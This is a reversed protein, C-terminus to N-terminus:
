TQKGIALKKVGNWAKEVISPNKLQAPTLKNIEEDTFYDRGEFDGATNVAGTEPKPPEAPVAPTEVKPQEALTAAYAAVASFGLTRAKVFKEGLDAYSEAKLDPYATKLAALDAQETKKAQDAKYENAIRRLEQIEPDSDKAQQAKQTELDAQRKLDERIDAKSKGSKQSLIAIQIENPDDSEVSYDDKILSLVKKAAESQRRMEAWKANEQESQQSKAPVEVTKTVAGVPASKETVAGTANADSPKPDVAGTQTGNLVNENDM